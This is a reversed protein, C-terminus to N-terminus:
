LVSWPSAFRLHHVQSSVTCYTCYLTSYWQYLLIANLHPTMTMFVSFYARDFRLGAQQLTNGTGTNPPHTKGHM